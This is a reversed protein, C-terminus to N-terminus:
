FKRNGKPFEFAGGMDERYGVIIVRKRDQPVNFNAANILKYAV